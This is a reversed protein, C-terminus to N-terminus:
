RRIMKIMTVQPPQAGRVPIVQLSHWGLKVDKMTFAGRLDLPASQGDFVVKLQATQLDQGQLEGTWQGDRLFVYYRMDTPLDRVRLLVTAPDISQLYSELNEVSELFGNTGTYAPMTMWKELLSTLYRSGRVQELYLAMGVFDDMAAADTGRLQAAEPGLEAFQRILTNVRKEIAEDATLARLWPHTEDASINQALWRMILREGLRGNAGWEPQTYGGVVPITLHGFEHTLQRVWEFPRRPTSVSYVYINGNSTEAGAEGREAMWINVVGDETFRPTLDTYAALLNSLRVMLQATRQALQARDAAADGPVDQWMVRFCLRWCQNKQDYSYAYLMHPFVWGSRQADSLRPNAGYKPDRMYAAPTPLPRTTIMGQQGGRFESKLRSDNITYAFPEPAGPLALPGYAGLQMPFGDAILSQAQRRIERTDSLYMSAQGYTEFLDQIIPGNRQLDVRMQETLATTNTHAPAIKAIGRSLQWSALSLYLREYTPYRELAPKLLNVASDYEQRVGLSNARTIIEDAGALREDQQALGALPFLLVMGLTVFWKSWHRVAVM